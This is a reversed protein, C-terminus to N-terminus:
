RKKARRGAPELWVRNKGLDLTIRYQSLVAFNLAGDYIIDAVHADVSVSKTGLLQLPMKITDGLTRQGLQDVAGPSLTVRDLNASDVLLYLTGVEAKAALFATLGAGGSERMLRMRGESADSATARRADLTITREALSVTIVRGDFADLALVGDIKSLGKPLLSMIDFVGPEIRRHSGRIDLVVAGCKKWDMREGTIRFAVLSGHPHCGAKAALEPSILSIGGGSDFLLRAPQGNVKAEVVLLNGVYPELPIIAPRSMAPRQAALPSTASLITLLM